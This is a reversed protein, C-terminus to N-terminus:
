DNMLPGYIDLSFLIAPNRAPPDPRVATHDFAHSRARSDWLAIMFPPLSRHDLQPYEKLCLDLYGSAHLLNYSIM